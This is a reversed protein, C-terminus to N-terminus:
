KQTKSNDSNGSNYESNNEDEDEEDDSNEIKKNYRKKRYIEVGILNNGGFIEEFEDDNQIAM